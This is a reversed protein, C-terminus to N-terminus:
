SCGGSVFEAQERFWIRLKSGDLDLVYVGAHGCAAVLLRHEPLLVVRHVFKTPLTISACRYAPKSRCTGTADVVERSPGHPLRASSSAM